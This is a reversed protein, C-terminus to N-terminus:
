KIIKYIKKSAERVTVLAWGLLMMDQMCIFYIRTMNLTPLLLSALRTGRALRKYNIRICATLSHTLTVDQGKAKTYHLGAVGQDTDLSITSRYIILGEAISVVLILCYYYAWGFMKGVLM